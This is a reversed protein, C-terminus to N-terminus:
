LEMLHHESKMHCIPLSFVKQLVLKKQMKKEKAINEIAKDIIAYAVNMGEATHFDVKEKTDALEEVRGFISELGKLNKKFQGSLTVGLLMLIISIIWTAGAGILQGMNQTDYSKEEEYLANKIIQSSKNLLEIKQTLLGFWLTPDILYEGSQAAIIIEAKAKVVEEELKLNAPLKYLNEIHGKSIKDNM